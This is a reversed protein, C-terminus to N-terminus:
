IYYMFRADLQRQIGVGEAKECLTRITTARFIAAMQDGLNKWLPSAVCDDKLNCQLGTCTEGSDDEGV